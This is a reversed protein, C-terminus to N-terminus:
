GVAVALEEGCFGGVSHHARITVASSRISVGAQSRTFPQEDVHPHLLLRTAAVTGDEEVIEWRDAYAEWGADDSRITVTFTHDGAVGGIEADVVDACGATAAAGSCGVVALALWL